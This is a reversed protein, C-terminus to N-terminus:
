VIDEGKGLLLSGPSGKGPYFPTNVEMEGDVKERYTKVRQTLPEHVVVNNRARNIGMWLKWLALILLTLPITVAWYIWFNPKVVSTSTSSQPSASQSFDFMSMSFM